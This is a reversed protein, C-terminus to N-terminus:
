SGSACKSVIKFKRSGREETGNVTVKKTQPNFKANQVLGKFNIGGKIVVLESRLVKDLSTGSREGDLAVRAGDYYCETMHFDYTKAGITVKALGYDGFEEVGFDDDDDPAIDGAEDEQAYAITGLASSFSLVSLAIISLKFNM